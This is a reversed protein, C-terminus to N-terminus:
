GYRSMASFDYLDVDVIGGKVFVMPWSGESAREPFVIHPVGESTLRAIFNMCKTCGRNIAVVVLDSDSIVKKLPSGPPIGTLVWVTCIWKVGTFVKNGGHLSSEITGKNDMSTFRLLKGRNPAVTKDEKPFVTEGGKMDDNLYILYTHIRDFGDIPDHHPSFFGGAKYRVVQVRQQSHLPTCSHKAVRESLWPVDLWATDSTRRNQNPKDCGDNYIASPALEPEAMSILDACETATLFNEIIRIDTM